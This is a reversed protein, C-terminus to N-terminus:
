KRKEYLSIYIKSLLENFCEIDGNKDIEIPFKIIIKPPKNDKAYYSSTLVINNRNKSIDVKASSWSYDVNRNCFSDFGKVGVLVRDLNFLMIEKNDTGILYSSIFEDRSVITSM